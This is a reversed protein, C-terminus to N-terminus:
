LHWRGEERQEVSLKGVDRREGPPVGHAVMFTRQSAKQMQLSEAANSM